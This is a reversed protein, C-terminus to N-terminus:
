QLWTERIAIQRNSKHSTQFLPDMRLRRAQKLNLHLRRVFDGDLVGREIGLGVCVPRTRVGPGGVENLRDNESGAVTLNGYFWELKTVGHSGSM